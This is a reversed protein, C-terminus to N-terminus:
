KLFRFSKLAENLARQVAQEDTKNFEKFTGPKLGVPTERVEQVGLEYCKGHFIRYIDAKRSGNTWSDSTHFVKLRLGNIETSENSEPLWDEGDLCPQETASPQIEAVFFVAASFAPKDAFGNKPYAFCAVTHPLGSESECVEERASCAEAPSWIGNQQVCHILNASYKFSFVGDPSTFKQTSSQALLGAPVLCLTFLCLFVAEFKRRV